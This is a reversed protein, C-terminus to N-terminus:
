FCVLSATCAWSWVAAAFGLQTTPLICRCHMPKFLLSVIRMMHCTCRCISTCFATAMCCCLGHCRERVSRGKVYDGIFYLISYTAADPALVLLHRQGPQAPKPVEPPGEKCQRCCAALACCTHPLMVHMCILEHLVVAQCPACLFHLLIYCPFTIIM